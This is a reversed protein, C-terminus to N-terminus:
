WASFPRPCCGACAGKHFPCLACCCRSPVNESTQPTCPTLVFSTVMIESLSTDRHCLGTCYPLLVNKKPVLCHRGGGGGLPPTSLPPPQVHPPSPVDVPHLATSPCRILRGTGTPTHSGTGREPPPPPCILTLQAFAYTSGKKPVPAKQSAHATERFFRDILFFLPHPVGKTTSGYKRKDAARSQGAASATINTRNNPVDICRRAVSEATVMDNERPQVRDVRPLPEPPQKVLVTARGFSQGCSVHPTGVRRLTFHRNHHAWRFFLPPPPQQLQMVGPWMGCRRDVARCLPRLCVPCFALATRLPPCCAFCNWPLSFISQERIGELRRQNGGLRQQSGALPTGDMIGTGLPFVFLVRAGELHGQAVTSPWQLPSPLAGPLIRFEAELDFDAVGDDLRGVIIAQLDEPQLQPFITSRRLGSSFFASRFHEMADKVTDSMFIDTLTQQIWDEKSLKPDLEEYELMGKFEAPAMGTSAPIHGVEGGGRVEPYSTHSPFPTCQQKKPPYMTSANHVCKPSM